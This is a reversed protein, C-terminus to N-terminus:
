EAPSAIAAASLIKALAVRVSQPQYGLALARSSDLSVDQPRPAPMAVQSRLSATLRTEPLNLVGALLRGFDYRSLRETGGLHLIGSTQLALLLGEAACTVSVPTRFEDTFLCLPEAQQLKSVFASLFCSATPTAAGYLLPLRCVTALPYAALIAAEAIAKQVGYHSLPTPADAEGYPAAEGNFVLDTSTFVYPIQAEACLQALRVAATVNIPYTIEPQRQCVHPKSQAATHIVADPQVAQLLAAIAALDALNLPQLSIGALRPCQRYYTGWVQWGRAQALECVYSGLFGSAGTVLLKAM